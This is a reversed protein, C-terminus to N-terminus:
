CFSAEQKRLDNITFMQFAVSINQVNQNTSLYNVTHADSADMWCLM